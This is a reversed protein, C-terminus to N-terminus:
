IPNEEVFLLIQSKFIITDELECDGDSEDHLARIEIIIDDTFIYREEFRERVVIPRSDWEIKVLYENRRTTQNIIQDIPSINRERTWKSLGLMSDIPTWRKGKGVESHWQTKFEM